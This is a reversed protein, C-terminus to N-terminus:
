KKIIELVDEDDEINNMERLIQPYRWSVRNSMPVVTFVKPNPLCAIIKAAEERTLNKAPKHFYTQAAAEIGFVGEGM